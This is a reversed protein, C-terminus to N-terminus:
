RCSILSFLRCGEFMEPLATPAATSASFTTLAPTGPMPTSSLAPTTPPLATPEQTTPPTGAAQGCVQVDLNSVLIAVSQDVPTLRIRIKVVGSTLEGNNGVSFQSDNGSQLAFKLHSKCRLSM